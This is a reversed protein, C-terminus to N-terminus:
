WQRHWIIVAGKKKITACDICLTFCINKGSDRKEINLLIIVFSMDVMDNKEMGGAM